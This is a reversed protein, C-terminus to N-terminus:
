AVPPTTPVLAADDQAEQAKLSDQASVISSALELLQEKTAGDGNGLDTIKQRLDDVLEILQDAKDNATEVEATLEAVRAKVDDIASMIEDDKECHFHFNFTVM